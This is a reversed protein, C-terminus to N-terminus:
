NGYSSAIEELREEIEEVSVWTGRVMVGSRRSMATIDALPNADVLVLNAVKGEEITGSVDLEGLFVAVNV